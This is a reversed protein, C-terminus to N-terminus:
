SSFQEKLIREELNHEPDFLLKATQARDESIAVSKVSQVEFFDATASVLRDSADLVEFRICAHSPLLAGRWTRPRFPSIPTLAILDNGLPIIPGGASLNYATSGASTAVLAGDCSLEEMRPIDDVFIKIKAAQRTQRYLSVENVAIKHHTKGNIDEATMQLPHLEITEAKDLRAHLSDENYENMLFGVSGRNMGYIPARLDMHDHITHLMMGDGGLAVIVDADKPAVGDYVKTLQDCAAQAESTPAALFAIKNFSM